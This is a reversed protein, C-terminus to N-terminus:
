IIRSGPRRQVNFRCLESTLPLISSKRVYNDSAIDRWEKFTEDMDQFQGPGPSGTCRQFLETRLQYAVDLANSLINLESDMAMSRVNLNASGITFAADDVIAVKAHIYIEEYHKPLRPQAACCWLSGIVVNIGENELATFDPPKPREGKKAAALEDAHEYPMSDSHGLIKVVDHTPLDMGDSEPTSTLIFLYVKEEYGGARMRRMCEVLHEAWTEYQLYQNQIFMYHMVQRNLNAYCEKIHKEKYVPHTRMLQASHNTAYRPFNELLIRKRESIFTDPKDQASREFITAAPDMIRTSTEPALKCESWAQCFNHNLDYLIPGRVRLSVDQYPKATFGHKRCFAEIRRQRISPGRQPDQSQMQLYYDYADDVADKWQDSAKSPHVKYLTERRADEFRHEATDWFDTTSNHGMVYGVAKEPQMYDILMM